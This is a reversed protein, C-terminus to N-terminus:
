GRESVVRHVAQDHPELPLSPVLQLTFAPAITRAHLGPHTLLRDYHGGGRGLRRGCHDFALGPVLILDLQDVSVTPLSPLPNPPPRIPTDFDKTLDSVRTLTMPAAPASWEVRPFAVLKGEALAHSALPLIDVEGAEIMPRYFLIARAAAFEPLAALVRVIDASWDARQAPPIDRLRARM